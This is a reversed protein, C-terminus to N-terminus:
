RKGFFFVVFILALALLGLPITIEKQSQEQGYELAPQIVQVPTGDVADDINWGLKEGGVSMIFFVALLIMIILFSDTVGVGLIGKRKKKENM